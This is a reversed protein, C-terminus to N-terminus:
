ARWGRVQRLDWLWAASAPFPVDVLQSM